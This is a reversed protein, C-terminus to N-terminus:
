PSTEQSAPRLTAVTFPLDRISGGIDFWRCWVEDPGAQGIVTMPPGGSKLQVVDGIEFGAKQSM